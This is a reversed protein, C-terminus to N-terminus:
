TVVNDTLWRNNKLDNMEKVSLRYDGIKSHTFLDTNIEPQRTHSASNFSTLDILTSDRSSNMCTINSLNYVTPININILSNKKM